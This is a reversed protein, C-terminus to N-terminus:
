ALDQFEYAAEDLVRFVRVPAPDPPLARFVRALDPGALRLSMTPVGPNFMFRTADLVAQDVFLRPPAAGARPLHGLPPLSGIACGTHEAVEEPTAFRMNKSGFEKKFRRGNIQRQAHTAVLHFAGKCHFLICKSGLGDWGAAARHAASDECTAVAPHELTQFAVGQEALLRQVNECVARSV